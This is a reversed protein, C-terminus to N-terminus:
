KLLKPYNVMSRVDKLARNSLYSEFFKIGSQDVGYMQLQLLFTHDITDIIETTAFIKSFSIKSCNYTYRLLLLRIDAEWDPKRAHMTSYSGLYFGHVLSWDTYVIPNKVPYLM